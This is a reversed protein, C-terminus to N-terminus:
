LLNKLHPFLNLFTLILIRAFTGITQTGHHYNLFTANLFTPFSLLLFTHTSDILM